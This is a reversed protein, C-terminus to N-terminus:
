VLEEKLDPMFISKITFTNESNLIENGVKKGIITKGLLSSSLLIEIREPLFSKINPILETGFLILCKIEGSKDEIIFTNGPLIEEAQEKVPIKVLCLLGELYSRRNSSLSNNKLMKELFTRETTTIFKEPYNLFNVMQGEM